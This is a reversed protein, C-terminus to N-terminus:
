VIGEELWGMRGRGRRRGKWDERRRTKENEGGRGEGSVLLRTFLSRPLM